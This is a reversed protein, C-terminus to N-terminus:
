SILDVLLGNIEDIKGLIDFADRQTSLVGSALRELKQDIVRVLTYKKQRLINPSSQKEVVDLGTRVILGMFGRVASKYRVVAAPLPARKVEEGIEYIEDLLEPISASDVFSALAEKSRSVASARGADRLTAGFGSPFVQGSGGQSTAGRSVFHSSKKSRGIREM